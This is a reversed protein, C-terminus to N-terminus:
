LERRRTAHSYVVDTRLIYKTGAKVPLAEHQWCDVGHRHLLMLGPRPSVRASELGGHQHYFVTEGGECASLYILVTYRTERGVRTRQSEINRYLFLRSM